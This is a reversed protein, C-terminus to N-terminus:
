SGGNEVGKREQEELDILYIKIHHMLGAIAYQRQLEDKARWYSDISKRMGDTLKIESVNWIPLCLLKLLLYCRNRFIKAGSSLDM